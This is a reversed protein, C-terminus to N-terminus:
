APRGAVAVGARVLAGFRELGIGAWRELVRGSDAGFAPASRERVAALGPLVLPLRGFHHCPGGRAPRRCLLARDRVRELLAELGSGDPPSPPRGGNAKLLSIALAWQALEITAGCGSDDRALVAGVVAAAGCAGSLYDVYPVAAPEPRGGRGAPALGAALELGGGYGVRGGWPGGSPFAPMALHVLRPNRDALLDPDLGFNPLVRPSFNEILVDARDVLRLFAARGEERALDLVLSRKGRNLDGFVGTCAGGAARTGDRRAPGEVKVVTAGLGALLRGCWPGAWVM